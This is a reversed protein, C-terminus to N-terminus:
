AGSTPTLAGTGDLKCSMTGEKDMPGDIEVNSLYATGSFQEGSDAVIVDVNVLTGDILTQAISAAGSTKEMLLGDCDVSWSIFGPKATKWPWSTKVTLDIMERPVSLKAGRQGLIATTAGSGIEVIVDVGIVENAM